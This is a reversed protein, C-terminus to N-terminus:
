VMVNTYYHQFSRQTSGGGLGMMLVRRIDHNWLWPTHFYETYEFHGTLPNAISMMTERTGNFSLMRTGNEDIVQVHHYPSIREYIIAAPLPLATTFLLACLYALKLTPRADRRDMKRKLPEKGVAAGDASLRSAQGANSQNM